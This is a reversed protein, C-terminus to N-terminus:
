EANRLPSLIAVWHKPEGDRHHTTISNLEYRFGRRLLIPQQPHPPPQGAPGIIAIHGEPIDIPPGDIHTM